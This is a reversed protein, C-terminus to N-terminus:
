KQWPNCHANARGIGCLLFLISFGLYWVTHANTHLLGPRPLPSLGVELAGLPLITKEETNLVVTLTVLFSLLWPKEPARCLSWFAATATNEKVMHQIVLLACFGVQLYM